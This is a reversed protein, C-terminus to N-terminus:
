ARPWKLFTKTFRDTIKTSKATKSKLLSLFSFKQTLKSSLPKKLHETVNLLSFLFYRFKLFIPVPVIKQVKSFFTLSWSYLKLPDRSFLCFINNPYMWWIVSQSMRSMCGAITTIECKSLFQFHGSDRVTLRVPTLFIMTFNVIVLSLRCFTLILIWLKFLSYM